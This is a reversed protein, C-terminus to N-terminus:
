CERGSFYEIPEIVCCAEHDDNTAELLMDEAHDKGEGESLWGLFIQKDLLAIGM